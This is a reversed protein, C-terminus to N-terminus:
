TMKAKEEQRLRDEQIVSSWAKNHLELIKKSSSLDEKYREHIKSIDEKRGSREGM